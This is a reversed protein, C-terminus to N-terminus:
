CETVKANFIGVSQSGEGHPRSEWGRVVITAGVRMVFMLPSSEKANRSSDGVNVFISEALYNLHRNDMCGSGREASDRISALYILHSADDKSSTYVFSWDRYGEPYVVAMLNMRRGTSKQKEPLIHLTNRPLPAIERLNFDAKNSSVM